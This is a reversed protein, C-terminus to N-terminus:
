LFEGDRGKGGWELEFFFEKFGKFGIRFDLFFRNGSPWDIALGMFIMTYIFAAVGSFPTAFSFDLFMRTVFMAAALATASVTRVDKPGRPISLIIFSEFPSTIIVFSPAVIM